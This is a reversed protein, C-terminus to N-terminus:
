EEEGKKIFCVNFVLKDRFDPHVTDEVALGSIAEISERVCRNCYDSWTESSLKEQTDWSWAGPHEYVNKNPLIGQITGNIIGWVEGGLIAMGSKAIEILAEKISDRPWALEGNPARFANNLINQPLNEEEQIM